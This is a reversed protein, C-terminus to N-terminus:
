GNFNDVAFVFKKFIDEYKRKSLRGVDLSNLECYASLYSDFFAYTFSQAAKKIALSMNYNCSEIVDIDVCRESSSNVKGVDATSRKPVVINLYQLVASKKPKLKVKRHLSKNLSMVKKILSPNIIFCDFIFRLYKNKAAKPYSEEFFYFDFPLYEFKSINHKYKAKDYAYLFEDPAFRFSQQGFDVPGFYDLILFGSDSDYSLSPLKRSNSVVVEFGDVLKLGFHRVM